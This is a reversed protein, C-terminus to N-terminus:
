LTRSVALPTINRPGPAARRGAATYTNPINKRQIEANVGRMIGESVAHATALVTLNIQLMARFTDHNRRLTALLEPAAQSPIKQAARLGEVAIMYRRSMESKQKELRMAEAIKGARVLETEREIIGLLASMVEMLEESLKRIDLPTSAAPRAVPAPVAAPRQQPRQNM